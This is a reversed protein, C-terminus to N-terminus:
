TYDNDFDKLYPYDEAGSQGPKCFKPELKLPTPTVYEELTMGRPWADFHERCLILKDSKGPSCKACIM